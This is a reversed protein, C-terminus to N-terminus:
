RRLRATWNLVVTVPSAAEDPQLLVFRKGDSAVDYAQKNGPPASGFYTLRTQFLAAPVGVELTAEGRVPAAMLKRDSALYFLEKGDRRWRPQVGGATSVQRKSGPTPFSQIYVEDRGSEDSTYAVWRGDPSFQGQNENAPTQLFAFPKHGAGLPLM